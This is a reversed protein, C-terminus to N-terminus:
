IKVHPPLNRTITAEGIDTVHPRNWKGFFKNVTLCRAFISVVWKTLQSAEDVARELLNFLTRRQRRHLLPSLVHQCIVRSKGWNGTLLKQRPRPHQCSEFLNPTGIQLSLELWVDTSKQLIEGVRHQGGYNGTGNNSLSQTTKARCYDSATVVIRRQM